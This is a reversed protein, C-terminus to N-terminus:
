DAGALEDLVPGFQAMLAAYLEIGQWLNQLRLNENPAHQNNDHNVMPVVVLPVGLQEEFLYLPLSGGLIPLPVAPQDTAGSVVQQVARAFPLDLPTRMARYGSGWELRVIRPHALRTDLDPEQAVIFWGAQRLHREVAARLHDLTQDPVLRFSLSAMAMTPIANKAAEGVMGSAFGKVNLAPRLIREVLPANNGETRALGLSRRLQADSDPVRALAARDSATLPRVQDEVGEILIKGDSDRMGAVLEALMAAPNPAWNGYHGSHLSRLPGYVTLDFGLVGRVGYVVQPRRSQHVPGDCFIWGDAKLLDAHRRLMEGLHASGAEEEGEFFFKLNVSPARGAARLADLATLMAVIPSKDDSASRAYLRWEEDMLGESRRWDVPAERPQDVALLGARMVPEWPESAWLSREVPQGDYHAYFVLTHQAGPAKLEGFIAPPSGPSELRRAQIGRRELMAILRQVNREINARDSAVNPIRLLEVLEGVIEREHAQRYGRVQERVTAARAVQPIAAALLLMWISWRLGHIRPGLSYRSM